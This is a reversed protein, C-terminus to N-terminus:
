IYKISEIGYKEYGTNKQHLWNKICGVSVGLEDALERKHEYSQIGFYFEVVFPKYHKSGTIYCHHENQKRTVWRLNKYYPNRTNTDIHDVEPLNEPNPVFLEAVLRHRLFKQREPIHNKCQLTVRPYGGDNVDGRLIKRTNKNRVDGFENAQYCSEWNPIDKWM